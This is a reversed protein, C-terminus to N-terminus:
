SLSLPSLIFSKSCMYSCLSLTNRDGTKALNLIKLQLNLFDMKRGTWRRRGKWERETLKIRLYIRRKHYGCPKPLKLSVIRGAETGKCFHLMRKGTVGALTGPKGGLAEGTWNNHVLPPFFLRILWGQPETCLGPVQIHFRRLGCTSLLSPYNGFLLRLNNNDSPCLPWSFVEVM